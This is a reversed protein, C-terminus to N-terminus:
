RIHNCLFCTKDRVKLSSKTQSSVTPPPKNEDHAKVDSSAVSNLVSNRTGFTCLTNRKHVELLSDADDVTGGYYHLGVLKLDKAWDPSDPLAPSQQSRAMTKV